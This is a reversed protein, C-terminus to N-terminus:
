PHLFLSFTMFLSHFALAFDVVQLCYSLFAQAIFSLVLRPIFIANGLHDRLVITSM